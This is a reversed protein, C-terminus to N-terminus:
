PLRGNQIGGQRLNADAILKRYAEGESRLFKSFQEPPEGDARGGERAILGKVEPHELAKVFERHLVAIVGAPTKAPAVIGYDQTKIQAVGPQLFLACIGFMMARSFGAAQPALCRCRLQFISSIRAEAKSM